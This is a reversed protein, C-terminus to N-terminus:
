DFMFFFEIKYILAVTTTDIREDTQRAPCPLAPCPPWVHETVSLIVSKQGRDPNPFKSFNAILIQSNRDGGGRQQQV